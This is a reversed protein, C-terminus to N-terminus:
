QPPLSDVPYSGRKWDFEIGPKLVVYLANESGVGPISTDWCNRYEMSAIDQPRIRALPSEPDIRHPVADSGPIPRGSGDNRRLKPGPHSVVAGMFSGIDAPYRVGNIWVYQITGCGRLRDGLMNPHLKLAADYADFIPRKSNTISTSDLFYDSSLARADVRVTDLMQPPKAMGLTLDVSDGAAARLLRRTDVYGIKRAVLRYSEGSDPLFRFTYRGHPDTVGSYVAEGNARLVALAVGALPLNAPDNVQVRVVARATDQAHLTTGVSLLAATLAAWRRIRM